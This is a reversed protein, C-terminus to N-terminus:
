SQPGSAGAITFGALTGVVFVPTLVELVSLM